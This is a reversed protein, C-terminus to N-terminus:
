ELTKRNSVWIVPVADNQSPRVLKLQQDSKAWDIDAAPTRIGSRLYNSRNELTSFDPGRRGSGKPSLLVQVSMGVPQGELARPDIGQLAALQRANPIPVFIGHNQNQPSLQNRPEGNQGFSVTRINDTSQGALPIGNLLRSPSETPALAFEQAGGQISSPSQGVPALILYGLALSLSATVGTFVGWSPGSSSFAGSGSFLARAGQLSINRPNLRGLLTAIISGKGTSSKHFSGESVIREEVRAWLDLGETKSILDDVLMGRLASRAGEALDLADILAPNEALRREFQHVERVSLEDDLYAQILREDQPTINSKLTSEENM